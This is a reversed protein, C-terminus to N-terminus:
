EPASERGEEDVAPAVQEIVKSLEHLATKSVVVTSLPIFVICAGITLWPFSSLLLDAGLAISMPAVLTLVVRQLLLLVNVRIAPTARNNIM